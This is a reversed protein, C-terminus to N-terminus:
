SPKPRGGTSAIDHPVGARTESRGATRSLVHPRAWYRGTPSAPVHAAAIRSTRSSLITAGGATGAHVRASMAPWNRAPRSPKMQLTRGEPSGSESSGGWHRRRGRQRSRSAGRVRLRFDLEQPIRAVRSGVVGSGAAALRGSGEYPDGQSCGRGNWGRLRVCGAAVPANDAVPS